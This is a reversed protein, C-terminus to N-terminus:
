SAVLGGSKLAAGPNVEGVASLRAVGTRINVRESRVDAFDDLDLARALYRSVEAKPSKSPVGGLLEARRHHAIASAVMDVLQLGDCTKSDLSVASVVRMNRFRSNIQHRLHSGYAIGAPTSIGDILLTALEKRTTMGKILAATVWAHAEWLQKGEFPDFTDKDIVFAGVHGGSEVLLDVLEKFIGVSGQTLERFKLERRINRRARIAEMGRTLADPDNTKVAAVM